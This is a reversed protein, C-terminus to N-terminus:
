GSNDCFFAEQITMDPYFYVEKIKTASCDPLICSFSELIQMIDKDDKYTHRLRVFAKDIIKAEKISSKKGKNQRTLYANYLATFDNIEKPIEKLTLPNSDLKETTYALDSSTQMFINTDKKDSDCAVFFISLSFLLFYICPM